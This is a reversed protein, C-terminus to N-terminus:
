PTSAAADAPTKGEALAVGDLLMKIQAEELFTSRAFTEMPQPSLARYRALADKAAEVEGLHGLSAALIAHGSPSEGLQSREKSLAAAESFRGQFLRACALFALHAPRSPGSPDLRMATELHEVALENQGARLQVCGSNFWASASGPNLAVARKALGVAVEMDGGAFALDNAVSALVTADDGAAQVARRALALVELRDRERDESWGFIVITRLCSVAMALAPAFDSDLVIARNLLELAKFVEARGFTRFLPLARLYLDYGGVDGMPRASARRIEAQEMAPEIKGAVALAVTDQLAFVDELTDEFRHTWIQAGDSADTLQVGVRVRGGAKRVSGELVYRVGLQRAAERPSISKGKFSLSSGGGIVFISKIRSLAEVIEVVMGDAFYEQEPDGSLNAFPLVAISPKSPLPLLAATVRAPPVASAGALDTVSAVVKEWGPANLDGTWGTMDACQIRNFPLPLPAGDVSLQVLTGAERALDAEARVWQSKVAEASWIVVVSKAARLREEIVESYDRHAPLEDDRWVGYGLGRLADAIRKAETETSRAYSIFVDSM